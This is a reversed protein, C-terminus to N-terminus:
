DDDDNEECVHEEQLEHLCDFRFSEYEGEDDGDIGGESWQFNFRFEEGCKGCRFVTDLTGDDVLSIQEGDNPCGKEHCRVGNINLCECRNCLRSM